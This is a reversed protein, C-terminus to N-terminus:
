FGILQISADEVEDMSLETSDVIDSDEGLSLTVIDGGSVNSGLTIRVKYDDGDFRVIGTTTVPSGNIKATVGSVGRPDGVVRDFHADIVNPVAALVYSSATVLAGRDIAMNAYPTRSNIFTRGGGFVYATGPDTLAHPDLSRVLQALTTQAM